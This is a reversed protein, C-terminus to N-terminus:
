VYTIKGEVGHIGLELRQETLDAGHHAAVNDQVLERAFGTAEPEDFHGRLFFGRLGNGLEVALVEIATRQGDVFGLGAFVAGTAAETTAALATVETTAATTAVALSVETLQTLLPRGSLPTRKIQWGIAGDPM